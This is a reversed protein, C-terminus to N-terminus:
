TSVENCIFIKKYNKSKQKKEMQRWQYDIIYCGKQKGINCMM